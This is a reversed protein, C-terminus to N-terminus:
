NKSENQVEKSLKNKIRNIRSRITNYRVQLIESIEKSTFENCYYMAVLTRDDYDLCELLKFLDINTDIDIFEDEDTMFREIEM